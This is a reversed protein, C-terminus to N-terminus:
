GTKKTLRGQIKEIKNRLTFASFPKVIYDTAGSTLANFMADRDSEATVLIFPVASLAPSKRIQRLMEMGDMEPMNWDCFVLDFPTKAQLAAQMKAMGEKGNAAETVNNMNLQKLVDRLMLRVMQFDDV